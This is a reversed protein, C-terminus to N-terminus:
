KVKRLRPEELQSVSFIRIGIRGCLTQTLIRLLIKSFLSNSIELLFFSQVRITKVADNRLLPGFSNFLM